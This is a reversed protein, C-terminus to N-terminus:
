AQTHFGAHEAHGLVQDSRQKAQTALLSRQPTCLICRVARRPKKRQYHTM